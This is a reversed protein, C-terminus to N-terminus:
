GHLLQHNFERGFIPCISRFFPGSRNHRKAGSSIGTLTTGSIGTYAIAENDILITGSSAFGNVANLAINATTTGDTIATSLVATQAILNTLLSYVQAGSTHSAAITGNAGRTVGTLCATFGTGCTGETSGLGTYAM